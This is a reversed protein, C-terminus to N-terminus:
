GANSLAEARTGSGFLWAVEDAIEEDYHTLDFLVTEIEPVWREPPQMEDSCNLLNRYRTLANMLYRLMRYAMLPDEELPM